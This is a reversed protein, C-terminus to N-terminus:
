PNLLGTPLSAIFRQSATPRWKELLAIRNVRRQADEDELTEPNSLEILEGYAEPALEPAIRAPTRLGTASFDRQNSQM